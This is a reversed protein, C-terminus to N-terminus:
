EKIFIRQTSVTKHTKNDVEFICGCLQARGDAVELRQHMGTTFRDIVIDREMGLVSYVPGTMGLDTIYGTGKPLITDDATQVHTHTGFVASVRGDLHWGMAVKESTAEAHFDVFIFNVQKALSRIEREAAKFPCESPEMFIRGIVNVIGVKQGKRTTVITSGKGPCASSFNAPRIINKKYTLLPLAEKNDWTHNGMTFVDIASMEDYVKRTISHGHALNEGNAIVLDINNDAVVKKLHSHIIKRGTQGVIDGICLVKM